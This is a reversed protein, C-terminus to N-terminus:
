PKVHPTVLMSQLAKHAELVHDAFHSYGVGLRAPNYDKAPALSPGSLAASECAWLKPFAMTRLPATTVVKLNYDDSDPGRLASLVDWLKDGEVSGRSPKPGKALHQVVFYEDLLDLMQRATMSSLDVVRCTSSLPAAVGAADATPPQWRHGGYLQDPHVPRTDSHGSVGAVDPITPGKWGDPQNDSM